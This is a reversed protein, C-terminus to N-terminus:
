QRGCKDCRIDHDVECFMWPKLITHGCYRCRLRVSVDKLTPLEEGCFGAVDFDGFVAESMADLAKIRRRLFLITERDSKWVRAAVERAKVANVRQQAADVVSAGFLYFNADPWGFYKRVAAASERLGYEDAIKLIRKIEREANM